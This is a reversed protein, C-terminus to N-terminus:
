LFQEPHHVGAEKKIFGKYPGLSVSSIWGQAYRYTTGGVDFEFVGFADGAALAAKLDPNIVGM